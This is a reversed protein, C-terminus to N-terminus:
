PSSSMPADAAIPSRRRHASATSSGTTAAVMWRAQAAPNKAPAGPPAPAFLRHRHPRRCPLRPQPEANEGADPQQQQSGEHHRLSGDEREHDPLSHPRARDDLHHERQPRHQREGIRGAARRPGPHQHREGGAEGNRQERGTEPRAELAAQPRAVLAHLSHHVTRVPHRERHHQHRHQAGACGPPPKQHRARAGPRRHGAQDDGPVVLHANREVTRHGLLVQRAHATREAIRDIEAGVQERVQHERQPEGHLGPQEGRRGCRGGGGRLRPRPAPSAPARALLRARFAARARRRSPQGPEGPGHRGPEM